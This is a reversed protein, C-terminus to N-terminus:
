KRIEVKILLKCELTHEELTNEVNWDYNMNNNSCSYAGYLFTNSFKTM